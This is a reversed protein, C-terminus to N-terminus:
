RSFNVIYPQAFAPGWELYKGTTQWAAKDWSWDPNLGLDPNEAVFDNLNASTAVKNWQQAFYKEGDDQRMGYDKPTNNCPRVYALTPMPKGDRRSIVMKEVRFPLEDLNQIRLDIGALIPRMQMPLQLVNNETAEDTRYVQTYGLFFQNEDLGDTMVTNKEANAFKQVPNIYVWVDRRNRVDDLIDAQSRDDDTAVGTAPKVAFYNGEVIADDNEWAGNNLNYTFPFNSAFRDVVQYMNNWVQQEKFQTNNANDEEGNCQGGFGCSFGKGWEDMLFLRFKDGDEWRGSAFDFRTDAQDGGDVFAVKGANVRNQVANGSNEIGQVDFEDQTCSFMFPLAMAALLYKSRM